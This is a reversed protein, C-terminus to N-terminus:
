FSPFRYYTKNLYRAMDFVDQQSYNQEDGVVLEYYDRIAYALQNFNRVKRDKALRTFADSPHCSNACNQKVLAKGRTEDATYAHDFQLPERCGLLISAVLGLMMVLKPRNV